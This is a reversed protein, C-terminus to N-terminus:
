RRAEAAVAELLTTMREVHRELSFLTRARIRGAAGFRAALVADNLIATVKEALAEADDPAVLFGDAVTDLPGGAATAVVPCGAAMAEVVTRGFPEATCTPLVLVDAAAMLLPIDQRVGTFRVREAVGLAAARARCRKEYEPKNVAPGGVIWIECAPCAALIRPAAAVLVHQGKWPELRGVCLVLKREPSIGVQARAEAKGPLGEYESLDIGDHIQVCQGRRAGIQREVARSIAVIRTAVHRIVARILRDLWAEGLERVHAVVPRGALWGGLLGQLNYSTNVHVVAADWERAINRIRWAGALLNGAFRLLKGPALARRPPVLPMEVVELGAARYRGALPDGRRLVLKAAVRDRPLALVLDLLCRDSGGHVDATFHCFL